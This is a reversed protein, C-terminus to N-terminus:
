GQHQLRPSAPPVPHAKRGEPAEKGGEWARRGESRPGQVNRPSRNSGALGRADLASDKKLTRFTGASTM